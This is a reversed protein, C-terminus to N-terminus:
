NVVTRYLRLDPGHDKSVGRIIRPSGKSSEYAGHLMVSTADFHIRDTSLHFEELTHVALRFFLNRGRESALADLTRALRDDNLGQQEEPTLGFPHSELPALWEGVRYMPGPSVLANHILVGLCQDHRLGTRPVGLVANVISPLAAREVFYNILPHPGLHHSRLVAIGNATRTRREAPPQRSYM